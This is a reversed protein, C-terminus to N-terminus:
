SYCSDKTGYGETIMGYFEEASIEQFLPAEYIKKM